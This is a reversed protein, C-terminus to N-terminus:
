WVLLATSSGGDAFEDRLLWKVVLQLCCFAVMVEVEAREKRGRSLGGEMWGYMLWLEYQMDWLLACVYLLMKATTLAEGGGKKKEAAPIM